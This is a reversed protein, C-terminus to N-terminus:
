GKVRKIRIAICLKGPLEISRGDNDGFFDDSRAALAFTGPVATIHQNSKLHSV